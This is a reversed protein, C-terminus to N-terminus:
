DWEYLELYQAKTFGPMLEKDKYYARKAEEPLDDFTKKGFSEPVRRGQGEVSPAGAGNTGLRHAWVKRAEEAVKNLLAEGPEHGSDRLRVSRADAWDRMDPDTNYWPNAAMFRKVPALQEETYQPPPQPADPIPAPGVEQRVRAIQREVQVAAQGDGDTIAQARRAELQEVLAAKERREREVAQQAFTNFRTSTQQLETIQSRLASIEGELRRNKAHVMQPIERGRMVFERADTFGHKPPPGQWEKEPVWGEARAEAEWDTDEDDAPDPKENPENM